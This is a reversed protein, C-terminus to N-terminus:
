DHQVESGDRRRVFGGGVGARHARRRARTGCRDDMEADREELRNRYLVRYRRADGSSTGPVRTKPNRPQSANRNRSVSLPSITNARIAVKSLVSGTASSFSMSWAVSITSGIMWLM